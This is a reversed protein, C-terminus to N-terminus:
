KSATRIALSPPLSLLCSLSLLLLLIVILRSVDPEIYFLESCSPSFRSLPLRDRCDLHAASAPRLAVVCAYLACLGSQRTRCTSPTIALRFRPSRRRHRSELCPSVVLQPLYPVCPRRTTRSFEETRYGICLAQSATRTM